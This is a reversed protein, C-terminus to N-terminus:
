ASCHPPLPSCSVYGEDSEGRAARTIIEKCIQVLNQRHPKRDEDEESVRLNKSAEQIRSATMADQKESLLTGLLGTGQVWQVSVELGELGPPPPSMKAESQPKTMDAM